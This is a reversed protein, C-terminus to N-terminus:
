IRFLIWEDFYLRYLDIIFYIQHKFRNAQHTKFLSDWQQSSQLTYIHHNGTNNRQMKSLTLTELVIFYFDQWFKGHKRTSLHSSFIVVWCVGDALSTWPIDNFAGSSDTFPAQPLTTNKKLVRQQNKLNNKM